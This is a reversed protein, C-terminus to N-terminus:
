NLAGQGDDRLALNEKTVSGSPKHHATFITQTITTADCRWDMAHPNLPPDKMIVM